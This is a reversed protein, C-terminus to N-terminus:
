EMPLSAQTARQRVLAKVQTMVAGYAGFAKAQEMDDLISCCKGVVSPDTSSSARSVVEQLSVEYQLAQSKKAM